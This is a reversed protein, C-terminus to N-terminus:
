SPVVEIGDILLLSNVVLGSRFTQRYDVSNNGQWKLVAHFSCSCYLVNDYVVRRTDINVSKRYALESRYLLEVDAFVLNRRNCGDFRVQIMKM